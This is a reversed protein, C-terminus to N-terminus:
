NGGRLRSRFGARATDLRSNLDDRLSGRLQDLPSPGQVQNTVHEVSEKVTPGFTALGPAQEIAGITWCQDPPTYKDMVDFPIKCYGNDGFGAGWSNRVLYTKEDMDYGVILMAHGSPPSVTPLTDPMPMTGTRGAEQYCESPVFIGFAVPLGQALAAMASEGRPTRAFQVANYHTANQYCGDTPRSTVMATEFPWMREECVGFALVAAMGHHIYSGVDQDEKKALARSNYFLFLRSMDTLPLGAKRQHLELAGVIANATCSNTQGQDEVPSCHARLDVHRPLGAAAAAAADLRPAPGPTAEFLCGDLRRGNWTDSM